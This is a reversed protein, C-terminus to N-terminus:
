GIYENGYDDVCVMDPLCRKCFEVVVNDYDRDLKLDFRVDCFRLSNVESPNKREKYHGCMDEGSFYWLCDDCFYKNLNYYDDGRVFFSEFM